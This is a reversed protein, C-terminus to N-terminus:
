QLLNALLELVGSCGDGLHKGGSLLSCNTLDHTVAGHFLDRFCDRINLYDEERREGRREGREGKEGRGSM